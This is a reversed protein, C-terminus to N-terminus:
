DDKILQTKNINIWTKEGFFNIEIQVSKQKASDFLLSESFMPNFNEKQYERIDFYQKKLGQVDIYFGM